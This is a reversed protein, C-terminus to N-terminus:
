IYIADIKYNNLENNLKDATHILNLYYNAESETICVHWVRVWFGDPNLGSIVYRKYKRKNM